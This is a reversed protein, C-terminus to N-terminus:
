GAGCVLAVERGGFLVVLDWSCSVSVVVMFIGLTVLLPFFLWM